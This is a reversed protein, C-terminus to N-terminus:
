EGMEFIKAVFKFYKGNYDDEPLSLLLVARGIRDGDSASYYERDTMSMKRYERGNYTFTVKSKKGPEKAFVLNEAEVLELSRNPYLEETLCIDWTDFIMRPRTVPICEATERPTLTRSRKWYRRRDILWNEPQHATPVPGIVPATVVDCPGCITGDACRMDGSTLAGMTGRDESVFRILEGTDLSVGAVCKGGHKVSSSLLLAEVTRGEM